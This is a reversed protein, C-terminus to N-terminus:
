PSPDSLEFWTVTGAEDQWYSWRDALTEVLQLGLGGETLLSLQPNRLVSPVSASGDDIIEARIGGPIAILTITITGGHRRSDSHVASNTVLESALLVATDALASGDGLTDAVFERATRVSEPRGPVTMSGILAGTRTAHGGADDGRGSSQGRGLAAGVPHDDAM